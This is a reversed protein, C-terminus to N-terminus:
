FYFDSIIIIIEGMILNIEAHLVEMIFFGSVDCM